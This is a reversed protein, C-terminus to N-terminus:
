ATWVYEPKPGGLGDFFEEVYGQLQRLIFADDDCFCNAYAAESGKHPIIACKHSTTM